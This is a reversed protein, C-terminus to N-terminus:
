KTGGWRGHEALLLDCWVIKSDFYARRSDGKPIKVLEAEAESRTREVQEPDIDDVDRAHNALVIVTDGTIEAYGGSVVIRSTTSGAEDPEHVIRVIGDGLACIEKAHGPLVGVEGSRSILVVSSAEGEHMLRDPRVIQYSLKAM